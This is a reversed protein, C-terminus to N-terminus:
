LLQANTDQAPVRLGYSDQGSYFFTMNAVEALLGLSAPEHRLTM